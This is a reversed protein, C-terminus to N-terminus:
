NGVQKNICKQLVQYRPTDQLTFLKVRLKVKALAAALVKITGAFAKAAVAALHEVLTKPKRSKGVQYLYRFGDNEFPSHTSLKSM